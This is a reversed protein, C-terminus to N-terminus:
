EWQTHTGFTPGKASGGAEIRSVESQQIGAHEAVNSQSLNKHIRARQLLQGLCRGIKLTEKQQYYGKAIGPDQLAHDRFEIFDSM